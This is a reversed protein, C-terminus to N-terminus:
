HHIGYKFHFAMPALRNWGLDALKPILNPDQDAYVTVNIVYLGAPLAEGNHSFPRSIFVGGHVVAESDAAWFESCYMLPCVLDTAVKTGDPLNTTGVISPRPSGNLKAMLQVNGAYAGFSVGLLAILAISKWRM